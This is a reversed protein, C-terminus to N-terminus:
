NFKLFKSGEKSSNAVCLNDYGDLNISYEILGVGPPIDNIFSSRELHPFEKTVRYLKEDVIRFKFKSYEKDYLPSYGTIALINEFKSLSEIDSGLFDKCLKILSPLTM